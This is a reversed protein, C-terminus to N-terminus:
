FYKEKLVPYLAVMGITMAFFIVILTAMSRGGTSDDYTPPQCTGQVYVATNNWRGDNTTIKTSLSGTTDLANNTVTYNSAAVTQGGTVNVLAVSSIARCETVYISSGLVALTKSSNITNTNTVSGVNQASSQFLAVGVVIAVFAILLMGGIAQGKNNMKKNNRGEM